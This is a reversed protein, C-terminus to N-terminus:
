EKDKPIIKFIRKHEDIYFNKVEGLFYKKPVCGLPFTESTGENKLIEVREIYNSCSFLLDKLIM